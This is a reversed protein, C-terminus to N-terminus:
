YVSDFRFYTTLTSLYLEAFNRLNVPRQITPPCSGGGRRGEAGEIREGGGGEWWVFTQLIERSQPAM